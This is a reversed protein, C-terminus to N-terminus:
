GRNVLEFLQETIHYSRLSIILFTGMHRMVTEGTVIASVQRQVDAVPLKLEINMVM